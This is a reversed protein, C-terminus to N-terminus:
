TPDGRDALDRWAPIGAIAEAAHVGRAIARATCAVAAAGLAYLDGGARLPGARGTALAFVADGDFPTHAPFIAAAIGDQAMIALRRVEDRGLAADTAVVVITTNAAPRVSPKAPITGPQAPGAPWPLGGFEDGFEFPRARFARSGPLLVSGLANVAAIAGVAFGGHEPGLIASASGLGGKLDATTAGLGAGANGLAFTAGAAAAADRGLRRYPLDTGPASPDRGRPLDFLIAAPVIPVRHPGVSLGRGRDRLWEMVGSAAELGYASGGSIVLAHVRDVLSAPGIIETERSGPGGGRIDAAAIAPEEPLVVTTGSLFDLAEAHGVAIGAVDTILNRPGPHM